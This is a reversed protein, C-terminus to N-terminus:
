RQRGGPERVFWGDFSQVGGDDDVRAAQVEGEADHREGRRLRRWQRGGRRGVVIVIAIPRRDVECAGRREEGAQGRANAVQERVVRQANGEASQLDHLRVGRACM